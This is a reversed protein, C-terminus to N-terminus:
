GSSTGASTAVGARAIKIKVRPIHDREVWGALQDRTQRADYTTFGGSGYIPVSPRARGLLRAVPCGLLRAKLDWLAIDVASIATAAIGPRGVNRVARIMAECSGPVDLASRGTVAEALMGTIVQQAAAAAYSWGIGEAGGARATALVMTTADWTLTGDAEPADTPIVYAAATVQTVTPVGAVTPDTM